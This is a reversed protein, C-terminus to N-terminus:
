VFPSLFRDILLNLYLHSKISFAGQYPHPGTNLDGIAWWKVLLILLLLHKLGM